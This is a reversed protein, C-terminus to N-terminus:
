DPANEGQRTTVHIVGNAAYPYLFAAAPGRLIEIEEVDEAPIQSLADILSVGSLRVGNLFLLPESSLQMSSVGRLIVGRADYGPSGTAAGLSPVERAVLDAATLNTEPLQEEPEFLQSVMVEIPPLAFRIYAVGAGADLEFNQVLSMREPTVVRVSVLGVPPNEFTFLGQADTVAELDTGLLGVVAGSVPQLTTEDLVVGQLVRFGQGADQFAFLPAAPTV